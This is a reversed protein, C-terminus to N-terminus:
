RGRWMMVGASTLIVVCGLVTGMSPIEGFIVFGQLAAYLLSAYFFPAVYAADTMSTARLVCIQGTVAVTGTAVMLAAQPWSPWVWVPLVAVLAFITGTLNSLFIITLPHDGTDTLRKILVMEVGMFIAAALALFSGGTLLDGLRQGSGEAAISTVVIILAGILGLGGGVWRWRGMFEGLFLAACIMTFVPSTFSIGTAAALPIDRIALFMLLIGGFSAIIRTVYRLPYATRMPARAILVMPLVALVAFVYRAFTIQLAPIEPGPVVSISKAITNMASFLFAALLMWLGASVPPSLKLSFLRTM